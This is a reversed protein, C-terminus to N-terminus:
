RQFGGTIQAPASAGGTIDVPSAQPSPDQVVYVRRPEPESEAIWPKSGSLTYLGDEGRTLGPHEEDAFAPTTFLLLTCLLYRM